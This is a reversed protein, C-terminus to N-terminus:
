GKSHLLAVLAHPLTILPYSLTILPYHSPLSLTILPYLLTILARPLIAGRKLATLLQVSNLTVTVIEGSVFAGRPEQQIKKIETLETLMKDLLSSPLMM